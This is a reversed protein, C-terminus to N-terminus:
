DRRPRRLLQAGYRGHYWPRSSDMLDYSFKTVSHALVTYGLVQERRPRVPFLLPEGEGQELRERVAYAARRSWKM